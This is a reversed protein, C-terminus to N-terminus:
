KNNEGNNILSATKPNVLPIINNLVGVSITTDDVVSNLINLIEEKNPCDEAIDLTAIVSNIETILKWFSNILDTSLGLYANNIVKQNDPTVNVEDAAVVPTPEIESDVDPNKFPENVRAVEEDSMALESDDFKVGDVDPTIEVNIEDGPETILEEISEPTIFYELITKKTKM